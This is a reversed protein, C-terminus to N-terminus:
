ANLNIGHRNSLVIMQDYARIRLEPDANVLVKLAAHKERLYVKAFSADHLCIDATNDMLDAVKITQAEAPAYALRALDMAKRVKRNGMAVTTQVTCWHVLNGVEKGFIRDITAQSVGCDEVVDHLLSAAVMEPTYGKVSTVIRAVEVPHVIYPENTYKRVQGQHALHAFQFAQMSVSPKM